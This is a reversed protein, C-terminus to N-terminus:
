MNKSILDARKEMKDALRSLLDAGSLISKLASDSNRTRRYVWKAVYFSENPDCKGSCLSQIKDKIGNKIKERVTIASKLLKGAHTAKNRSIVNSDQNSDALATQFVANASEVRVQSKMYGDVAEILDPNSAITNLVSSTQRLPKASVRFLNIREQKTFARTERTGGTSFKREATISKEELMDIFRDGYSDYAKQINGPTLLVKWIEDRASLLSPAESALGHLNIGFYNCASKLSVTTMDSSPPNPMSGAPHYNDITYDAISELFYDTVISLGKSNKNDDTKNLDTKESEKVPADASIDSTKNEAKAETEGTTKNELAFVPSKRLEIKGSSGQDTVWGPAQADQQDKEPSDSNFIYLLIGATIIFVISFVIIPLKFKKM